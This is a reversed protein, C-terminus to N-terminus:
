ELKRGPMKQGGQHLVLSAVNGADDPVFELTANVEKVEFLWETEPHIQIKPQNTAQAFLKNEEEFIKISFDPSLEFVGEYKELSLESLDVKKMVPLPKDTKEWDIIQQRSTSVVKTINDKKDRIFELTTKADEIFFKDKEFPIIEYKNDMGRRSYLIGDQMMIKRDGFHTSEYVGEYAKLKKEALSIKEWKYPKNIAMAAMEAAQEGPYACMCNSLVAVFVEEEPLYMAYSLFGNIGGGHEIVPSGQINGLSWGYGYGTPKGNNLIYSTWAKKLSEKSVVQYSFIAKNWILLDEVTSRLSGAAYPLKMSLYDSNVLKGDQRAYGTARNPIIRNNDGFYSNKMGLKKFLNEEVYEPYSMGSVKEIIYGLLFFGSNNYRYNEGPAFDMPQNKFFDILEEPEMDLKSKTDFAEMGTYSKIGSTHTLLHEVTIHHGHTPYDPIFKTIEDTLSLKGAEMLQLIAVATFQKTVSGIRFVHDVKMPVNLEVNAMGFAKHYIIEGKKSVLATGGNEDKSFLESLLEDYKQELDKNSQAFINTSLVLILFFPLWKGTRFLQTSIDM